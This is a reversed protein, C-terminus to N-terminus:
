FTMFGDCLAFVYSIRPCTAAAEVFFNVSADNKPTKRESPQQEIFPARRDAAVLSPLLDKPFRTYIAM